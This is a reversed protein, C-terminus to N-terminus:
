ARKMAGCSRPRLVWSRRPPTSPCCARILAAARLAAPQPPMSWSITTISTNCRSKRRRHRINTPSRTCPLAARAYGPGPLDSNIGTTINLAGGFQIVSKKEATYRDGLILTLQDTIHTNVNAYIAYSNDYVYPETITAVNTKTSQVNNLSKNSEGYYYLGGVYEFISARGSATFEQSFAHEKEELKTIQYGVDTGDTEGRSALNNFRLATLSRLHLMDSFTYVIDEAVGGNVLFTGIPGNIAVKHYDGLISNTVADYPLLLNITGLAPAQSAGFDVRTTAELNAVPTLLLQGRVTGQNAGNVDTSGPVINKIYPEHYYYNGSLMFSALGPVIADSVYGDFQAEDYKGTGVRAEAELDDTPRRSVVNITGGVSNRGYLTGQPGRLVEVRAVDLFSTFQGFPRGIYVGDINTTVDPDSGNFVNNSGIGRIYFEAYQNNQAVQVNPAYQALGQSGIINSQTLEAATIATVSLATKQPDTEGLKTSTIVVTEIQGSDAPTAGTQALAGSAISAMATACLLGLALKSNSYRYNSRM